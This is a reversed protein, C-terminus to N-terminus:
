LAYKLIWASEMKRDIKLEASEEHGGVIPLATVNDGVLRAFEIASAPRCIADTTGYHILIPFNKFEGARALKIPDRAPGSMVTDYGGPYASNIFPRLGGLFGQRIEELNLVPIHMSIAAVKEPNRYAWNLVNLGGMSGGMLIVKGRKVGAQSQLWKYARDMTELMADNGWTQTGAFEGSFCTMGGDAVAATREQSNGYGKLIDPGSGAGHVVLGGYRPLDPIMRPRVTIEKQGPNAIGSTSITALGGM